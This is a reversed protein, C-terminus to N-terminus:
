EPKLILTLDSRRLKVLNFGQTSFTKWDAPPAPFIRSAIETPLVAFRPGKEAMFSEVNKQDLPTMFQQSRARFYWVLSPETFEVAGFEM